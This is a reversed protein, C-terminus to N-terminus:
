IAKSTPLFVFNTEITEDTVEVIKNFTTASIAYCYYNLDKFFKIIENPHYDFKASWKRLMESFIVPQFKEITKIGGEFVFKEAGEVDCKIFDINDLNNEEVFKDLTTFACPLKYTAESLLLDKLSSSGSNEPNFFMETKYEKNSLGINFICINSFNNLKINKDMYEFSRAVPEFSYIKSTNFKNAFFLSFYGINGGIDLITRPENLLTAVKNWLAEEYEGFNLITYPILGKDDQICYLKLGSNLEIIVANEDIILRKALSNKILEQYEFLVRHYSNMIDMYDNKLIEKNFFQQKLNILQTM